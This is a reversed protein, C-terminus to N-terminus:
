NVLCINILYGNFAQCFALSLSVFIWLTEARQSDRNINIIDLPGQAICNMLCGVRAKSEPGIEPESISGWMFGMHLEVELGM